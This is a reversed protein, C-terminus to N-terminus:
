HCRARHGKGLPPLPLAPLSSVPLPQPLSSAFCVAEPNWSNVALTVGEFFNEAPDESVFVESLSFHSCRLSSFLRLREGLTLEPFRSLNISFPSPLWDRQFTPVTALNDELFAKLVASLRPPTLPVLSAEVSEVRDQRSTLM